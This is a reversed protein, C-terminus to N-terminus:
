PPLLLYAAAIQVKTCLSCRKANSNKDLAVEFGSLDGTVSSVQADSYINMQDTPACEQRVGSQGFSNRLSLVLLFVGLLGTVRM